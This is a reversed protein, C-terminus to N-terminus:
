LNLVLVLVIWLSYLIRSCPAFLEFSVRCNSFVSCIARFPFFVSCAARFLCSFKLVFSLFWAFSVLSNSFFSRSVRFRNPISFLSCVWRFLSSLKLFFAAFREFRVLCVFFCCVARFLSCLKLVLLLGSWLSNTFLSYFTRFPSSSQLVLVFREFSVPSQSFLCSVAGFSCFFSCVTRFLSSFKHVLLLRSSFSSSLILLLLM